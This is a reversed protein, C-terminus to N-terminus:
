SGDPRFAMEPAKGYVVADVTLALTASSVAYRLAEIQAAASDYIGHVTPFPMAGSPGNELQALLFAAEYGANQALAAFPAGVAKLLISYAAGEDPTRSEGQRQQLMDRCSLLAMGGGPLLGRRRAARIARLARETMAVRAEIESPASGGTYLIAFGGKLRGIRDRLEKRIDTDTAAQLAKQLEAIQARLRRTDGRGGRISLYNKDLWLRRAHGLHAPGLTNTRDGTVELLPRGGTLVALDGLADAQAQSTSGPTKAAIIRLRASTESRNLLAAVPEAVSRAVIVLNEIKEQLALRLIPVVEEAEKFDFDSLLLAAEELEIAGSGAGHSGGSFFNGEFYACRPSRAQGGQIDILGSADMVQLIETLAEALNADDCVSRAIDALKAAGELPTIQSDLHTTIAALGAELHRRLQTLDGGAAAFRVGEAFVTRYVIAATATGDGVAEHLRWLMGRLLMAGINEYQNPLEIIRRAIVAGDDLLEPSTDRTGREIGVIRPRPGLTPQIAAVLKDIGRLMARHVDPQTLVGARQRPPNYNQALQQQDIM